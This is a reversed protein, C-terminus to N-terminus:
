KERAASVMEGIFFLAAGLLICVDGINFIVERLRAIRVNLYDVVYGRVFRDYLNSAAGGITLALGLKQLRYGKKPFIWLFIGAAGSAVALPLERVLQPFRALRGFPLGPNHSKFIAVIGGCGELERPFADDETHEIIDKVGLDVAIVVAILIILLVSLDGKGSKFDFVQTGDYVLYRKGDLRSEYM